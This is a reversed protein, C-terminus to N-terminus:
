DTLKMTRELIMRWNQRNNLAFEWCTTSKTLAACPVVLLTSLGVMAPPIAPLIVIPVAAYTEQDNNTIEHILTGILKTGAGAAAGPPAGAAGAGAAGAAEDAAGDAGAAAGAAQNYPNSLRIGMPSSIYQLLHSQGM